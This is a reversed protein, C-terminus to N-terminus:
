AQQEQNGMGMGKTYESYDPKHRESSDYGPMQTDGLMTLCLTGSDKMKFSCVLDFNENKDIGEPMTFGHPPAFEVRKSKDNM